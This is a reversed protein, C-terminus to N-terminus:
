LLKFMAKRKLDIKELCDWSYYTTAFFGLIVFLELLEIFFLRVSSNYDVMIDLMEGTLLLSYTIIVPIRVLRYKIRFGYYMGFMIVISSIISIISSNMLM